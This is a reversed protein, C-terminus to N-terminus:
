EFNYKSDAELEKAKQMKKSKLMDNFRKYQREIKYRLLDLSEFAKKKAESIAPSHKQAFDYVTIKLKDRSERGSKPAMLVGAMIGGVVGTILGIGFEISTKEKRM